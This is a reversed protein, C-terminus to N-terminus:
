SYQSGAHHVETDSCQVASRQLSHLGAAQERTLRDHCRAADVPCPVPAQPCQAWHADLTGLSGAWGCLVPCRAAMAAIVIRVAPSSAPEGLCPGGCCLCQQQKSACRDCCQHGAACWCVFLHQHTLPYTHTRSLLVSVRASPSQTERSAIAPSAASSRPSHSSLCLWHSAAASRTTSARCPPLLQPRM